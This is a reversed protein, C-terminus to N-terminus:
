SNASDHNYYVYIHNTRDSEAIHWKPFIFSNTVIRSGPKLEKSLKKALTEMRWPILYIFVRDANQLKTTWLNGWIVRIQARYPSFFARIRIYLVLYPNIEIGIATAGKAAAAFLLRGDGAGLDYVTMGTKIHALRIMASTSKSKTPVFPAGTAFAICLYIVFAAFLLQIVLLITYFFIIM